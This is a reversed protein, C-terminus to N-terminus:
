SGAYLAPKPPSIGQRAPDRTQERALVPGALGVELNTLQERHGQPFDEDQPVVESTTQARGSDQQPGLRHGPWESEGIGRGPLGSEPRVLALETLLEGCRM